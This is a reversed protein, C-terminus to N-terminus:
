GFRRRAGVVGGRASRGHESAPAEARMAHSRVRTEAECGSTLCGLMGGGSLALSHLDYGNECLLGRVMSEKTAGSGCHFQVGICMQRLEDASHQHMRCKAYHYKEFLKEERSRQADEARRTATRLGVFYGLALVALLLLGLVILHLLDSGGEEVDINEKSIKTADAGKLLCAGVTVPLMDLLQQVRRAPLHKTGLDASDVEKKRYREADPCNCKGVDWQQCQSGFRRLQMQAIASGSMGSSASASGADRRGRRKPLRKVTYQGIAGRIETVQRMSMPQKSSSDAMDGDSYGYLTEESSVDPDPDAHQDPQQQPQPQEQQPEEQEHQEQQQKNKGKGKGKGVKAKAKSKVKAKVSARGARNIKPAMALPAYRSRLASNFDRAVRSQIMEANQWGGVRRAFERCVRCSRCVGDVCESVWVGLCGGRCFLYSMYGYVWGSM